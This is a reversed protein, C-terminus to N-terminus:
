RQLARRWIRELIWIRADGVNNKNREGDKDVQLHCVPNRSIPPFRDDGSYNHVGVGPIGVTACNGM